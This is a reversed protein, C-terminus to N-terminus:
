LKDNEIKHLDKYNMKFEAETIFYLSPWGKAMNIFNVILIALPYKTDITSFVHFKRYKIHSLNNDINEYTCIYESILPLKTKLKETNELRIKRAQMMEKGKEQLKSENTYICIDNCNPYLKIYKSLIDPIIPDNPNM